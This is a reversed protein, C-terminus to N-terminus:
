KILKQTTVVDGVQVKIIYFGRALNDLNQLVVNNAGKNITSVQKALLKGANDFLSISAQTNVESSVAINVKDTFPNPYIGTVNTGKISVSLAVVNSYQYLGDKDVLKLRYYNTGPNVRIDNFAYNTQKDSVGKADTKGIATFNVGDSSREIDFHSSNSEQLTSWTLSSVGNAYSGKLATLIIPLTGAAPEAMCIDDVAFSLPTIGSANTSRIAIQLKQYNTGTPITFSLSIKQWTGATGSVTATSTSLVTAGLSGTPSTAGKIEIAIAPSTLANVKAFWASVTMVGQFHTSTTTVITRQWVLATAVTSSSVVMMQEGSHPGFDAFGSSMSDPNNIVRYKNSLSNIGTWQALDTAAL